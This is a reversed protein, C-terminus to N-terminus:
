PLSLCIILVLPNELLYGTLFATAADHASYASDPEFVPWFEYLSIFLSYGIFGLIPEM